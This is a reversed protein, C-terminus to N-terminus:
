APPILTFVDKALAAYLCELFGTCEETGAEVIKMVWEQHLVHVLGDPTQVVGYPAPFLNQNVSVVVNVSGCGDGEHEGEDLSEGVFHIEVDGVAVVFSVANGVLSYVERRLVTEPEDNSKVAADLSYVLNFIGPLLAYVHNDAVM